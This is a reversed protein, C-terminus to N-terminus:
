DLLKFGQPPLQGSEWNECKPCSIFFDDSHEEDKNTVLETVSEQECQLCKVTVKTM